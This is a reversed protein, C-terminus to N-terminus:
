VPQISEKVIEHIDVYIGENPHNNLSL